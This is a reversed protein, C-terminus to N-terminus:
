SVMLCFNGPNHRLFRNLRGQDIPLLCFHENINLLSNHFHAVLLLFDPHAYTSNLLIMNVVQNNRRFHYNCEQPDSLTVGFDIQYLLKRKFLLSIFSHGLEVIVLPSNILLLRVLMIEDYTITTDFTAFIM